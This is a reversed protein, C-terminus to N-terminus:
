VPQRRGPEDDGKPFGTPPDLIEGDGEGLVAHAARIREPLAGASPYLAM